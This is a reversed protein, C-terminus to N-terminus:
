KLLLVIVTGWLALLVNGLAYGVGYGLTPVRSNAAAQVAALAAASTGAGCCTGLLVGENMKLVRHGFLVAVWHAVVVTILSAAVLVVGSQLIGAVFRPGASIGVCAIFACLGLSDFVWLSAEPVFGVYRQVSRLWGAVLGGILVGVSVGLGLEVPGLHLAPIGLLGGLVIFIGVYIMDTAEGPRDAHGLLKAAEDVHRKLGELEFVDGRKVILGPYPPQRTGARTISRLFVSRAQPLDSLSALTRGALERATVVVYLRDEPVDLLEVDDVEVGVQAGAAVLFGRQGAIAVVDGPLLDLSPNAPLIQGDRRIQEIYARYNAPVMAELDAVSRRSFDPALRFARMEFNRRVSVESGPEVGLAAELERCAEALPRRFLRPAVQAQFLIVGLTGILYAVAFSSALSAREMELGAPTLNLKQMAGDATGVTASETIAGALVGAASGLDLAFFRACAYATALATGCLVFTVLFQPLLDKDLGSVFQPGVRYGIAFLFLLFFSHQVDPSIVVGCQGVLVGALLCGTVDGPRFPGIKLKGIAYGLALALFLALEAHARLIDTLETM